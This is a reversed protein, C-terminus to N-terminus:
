DVTLDESLRDKAKNLEEQKHQEKCEQRWSEIEKWKIARLRENTRAEPTISRHHYLKYETMLQKRILISEKIPAQLLQLLSRQADHFKICWQIYSIKTGDDKDDCVRSALILEREESGTIHLNRGHLPDSSPIRKAMLQYALAQAIDSESM